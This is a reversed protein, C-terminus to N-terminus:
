SVNHDLQREVTLTRELAQRSSSTIFSLGTMPKGKEGSKGTRYRFHFDLDHRRTVKLLTDQKSLRGGADPDCVFAVEEGTGGDAADQNSVGLQLGGDPAASIVLATESPVGHFTPEGSRVISLSTLSFSRPQSQYLTYDTPLSSAQGM